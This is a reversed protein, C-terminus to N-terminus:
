ASELRTNLMPHRGAALNVLRSGMAGYAYGMVEAACAISGEASIDANPNVDLVYFVGDRLRIDLRAYDRCGLVRYAARSTKELLRYEDENLPAPLLLKIENYHVSKSDFKSDYTCLRDHVDDFASFDMEAPPLMQITGNGWLAVHFERGDVFDEVLAPQQFTDLVYAVRERLENETMVVAEPTVGLSCHEGSPKVIAPFRDWDDVQASECLRWHPSPVGHADLLKKVTRKDQSLALVDPTSGTYAFNLSELTRAVLADSHPIGPLGECWNLVIYDDPDYDSLVETLGADCAPVSTVPHGVGAMALELQKVEGLAEELEHPAWTLDTNHLLLVPLDIRDNNSSM